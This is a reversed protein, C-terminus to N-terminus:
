PAPPADPKRARRASGSAGRDWNLGAIRPDAAFADPPFEIAQRPFACLAQVGSASLRMRWTQRDVPMPQAFARCVLIALNTAPEPDRVSRYRIMEADVARAADAFVQCGQYSVRDTWIAEDACLPAATLDLLRATAVEASFATYDAADNPWPTEPSEAFFLLRYFAMEAVATAPREAAYYVGLTRGARRFRSGKPYEADYRFPTALLVDLHRCEPPIAPKTAEILEELLAQEALTDTLKLTSVRHQAEVLRWCPGAFPRFESSLADRTWIPSSM